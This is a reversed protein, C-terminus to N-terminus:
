RWACSGFTRSAIFSAPLLISAVSFLRSGHGVDAEVAEDIEGEALGPGVLGMLEGGPEGLVDIMEGLRDADRELKGAGLDRYFGERGVDEGSVRHVICHHQDLVLELLGVM